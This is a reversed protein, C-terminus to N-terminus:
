IRPQPNRWNKMYHYAHHGRGQQPHPNIRPTGAGILAGAMGGFFVLVLPLAIQALFNSLSSDNLGYEISFAGRSYLILEIMALIAGVAMGGIAGIVTWSLTEGKAKQEQM